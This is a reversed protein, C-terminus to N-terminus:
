LEVEPSWLGGSLIMAAFAAPGAERYVVRTQRAVEEVGETLVGTLLHIVWAGVSTVFWLVLLDAVADIM